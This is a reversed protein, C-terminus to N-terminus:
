CDVVRGVDDSAVVVVVWAAPVLLFTIIEPFGTLTREPAPPVNGLIPAVEFPLFNLSIEVWFSEEPLFHYWICYVEVM